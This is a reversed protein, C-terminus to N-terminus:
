KPPHSEFGPFAPPASIRAHSSLWGAVDSHTLLARDIVALVLGRLSAMTIMSDLEVRERQGALQVMLPIRLDGEPSRSERERDFHDSTIIYTTRGALGAKAVAARIEGLVLDALAVNSAYEDLGCGGPTADLVRQRRDYICPPHPVPLHLLAVGISPDAALEKGERLADLHTQIHVRKVYEPSMIHVIETAAEFITSSRRSAGSVSAYSTSACRSLTESLRMRCYPLYWGVLGGNLGRARADDFLTHVSDAAYDRDGIRLTATRPGIPVVQRVVEGILYSLMSEKTEFGPPYAASAFLSTNRLSDLNPLELDPLRRRFSVNYDLGDFVIIVVRQRGTDTPLRFAGRTPAYASDIDTTALIWAVRGATPLAAPSLAAAGLVLAPFLRERWRLVACLLVVLGIGFSIRAIYPTLSELRVAELLRAGGGPLALALKSTVLCTGLGFLTFATWRVPAPRARMVAAILAFATAALLFMFLGAVYDLRSATYFFAKQSGSAADILADARVVFLFSAMGLGAAIERGKIPLRVTM